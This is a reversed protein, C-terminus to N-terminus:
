RERVDVAMGNVVVIGGTRTLGAVRCGTRTPPLGTGSSPGRVVAVQEVRARDTGSPVSTVSPADASSACPIPM